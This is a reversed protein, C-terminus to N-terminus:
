GLILKKARETLDPYDTKGSATRPIGSLIVVERPVMYSPLHGVLQRRIATATLNSAATLVVFAVLNTEGENTKIGVVEAELVQAVSLVQNIIEQPYVRNGAVKLMADRRGQLYLYGERDLYGLDGTFIALPCSDADGVFPNPRLKNQPDQGDLYGYMVGLGTHVIEGVELPECRSDDPRVVYIRVNKFPQGISSRHTNFDHPRLCTSRFDETQGYTKLISVGPALQPLQNLHRQSLDGGSVTLYRLSAHDTITDFHLNANIMELWISPVASIGTVKFRTVINFIDAPLWSDSLVLTCGVTIASLVQNLGVDFSFPLVNLLMDHSSLAYWEVEAEARACLDQETMLVGKPIGTSGSTFLCCGIRELNESLPPLLNGPLETEELPWDDIVCLNRMDTVAKEHPPLFSEERLLWWQMRAVPADAAFNGRLTMAGPGDLLGLRASCAKLIQNIQSARLKKNLCAFARGAGLAGMMAAVCNASKSLYLPIIAAERTHYSFAQAFQEAARALEAFTTSTVKSASEYHWIAIDHPRQGAHRQLQQFLNLM